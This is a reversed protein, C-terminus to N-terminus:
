APPTWNGLLLDDLRSAPHGNTMRELVDKLCANTDLARGLWRRCESRRTVAACREFPVTLLTTSLTESQAGSKQQAGGGVRFDSAAGMAVWEEDSMARRAELFPKADPGSPNRLGTVKGDVIDRITEAVVFPSTQAKLSETFFTTLREIQSSYPNPPPKPRERMTMPTAIVGPEVIAVRVGFPKM